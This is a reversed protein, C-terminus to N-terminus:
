HKKWVLVNDLDGHHRNDENDDKYRGITFWSSTPYEIAGSQANSSAKEIGNVFLKLSSGNYTAAVHYWQGLMFDETDELYTLQGNNVSALGISFRQGRTGLVWGSEDSGNDQICGIFGGWTDYDDVKVWGAVTIHQYPLGSSAPTGTQIDIYALNNYAGVEGRVEDNKFTVESITGHKLYVSADNADGDLKYFSTIENESPLFQGFAINAVLTIFLVIKKM